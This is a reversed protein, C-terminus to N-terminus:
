AREITGPPKFTVDYIARNIGRVEDVSRSGNWTPTFSEATRHAAGIL